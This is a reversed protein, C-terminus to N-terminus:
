RGQRVPVSPARNNNPNDVSSSPSILSSSSFNSVSSVMHKRMYYQMQHRASSSSVSSSQHSGYKESPPPFNSRSSSLSVVSESDNNCDRTDLTLTPPVGGSNSMSSSVYSETQSTYITSPTDPEDKEGGRAYSATNFTDDDGDYLSDLEMGEQRLLPHHQQLGSFMSRQEVPPFFAVPSHEEAITTTTYRKYEQEQDWQGPIPFGKSLKNEKGSSNKLKVNDENLCDVNVDLATSHSNPAHLIHVGCRSCFSHAGVEDTNNGRPSKRKTSQSNNTSPKNVYYMSM